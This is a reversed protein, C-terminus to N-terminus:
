GLAGKNKVPIHILKINNWSDVYFDGSEEQCYVTVKWGKRTLYLALNEAFTEFGGHAAPIGRIGTIVLEKM